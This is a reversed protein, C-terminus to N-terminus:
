KAEGLVIKVTKEEGKSYVKLIIADGVDKDRLARALTMDSDLKKGDVELIIDNEALGAKDAPSGPVVAFDTVTDGGVLLAGFDKSLNQSQALTKTIMTYRVGLFPRKISGTKRFSELAKRADNSPIAFGVLQGQRDVATNIGIVQAATNLLPGGSNGPNIAADIQFVGDLQEAGESGGATISRGIGSIVGTTVTNQYQGLSNGIAIVRQGILAQSSDAFTLYPADKIEIKLIALDNRPDIAVVKAEYEKDGSTIVTYGAAQDSVVHKNTLILGDASVFFGSGAGVQQINPQSSKPQSPAPSGFFPWFPDSDFPNAGFGPIKNLDKTIVISVVADKAKKVVDIVASEESLVITQKVEAPYNRALGFYKQLRPSKLAYVGGLVGGVVGFILSLIIILFVSKHGATQVHHYLEDILPQKKIENQEPM